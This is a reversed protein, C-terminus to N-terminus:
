LLLPPFLVFCFGLLCIIVSGFYVGCSGWVFGLLSWVSVVLFIGFVFIFGLAVGFLSLGFLFRRLSSFGGGGFGWVM